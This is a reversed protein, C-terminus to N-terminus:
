EIVALVDGVKVTAGAQVRLAVVRGAKPAKIENQMKMAEVVLVGQHAEVEVGEAVLVRVVRGPMPAKIPRPGSEGEPRSRTARLSRPDEVRYGYRRGNIYVASEEEARDLVCQYSEGDILLSLIGPELLCASGTLIEGGIECTFVSEEAKRELVLQHLRGEIAIRLIM